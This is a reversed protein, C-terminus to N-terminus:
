SQSKRLFAKLMERNYINKEKLDKVTEIKFKKLNEYALKYCTANSMSLFSEISIDELLGVEYYDQEHLIAWYGLVDITCDDDELEHNEFVLGNIIDFPMGTINDNEFREKGLRQLINELNLEIESPQCLLKGISFKKLIEWHNQKFTLIEKYFDLIKPSHHKSFGVAMSLLKDVLSKFCSEEQIAEKKLHELYAIIDNLHFRGYLLKKTEHDKFVHYFVQKFQHLRHQFTLVKDRLKFINEIDLFSLQEAKIYNRLKENISDISKSFDNVKEIIAKRLHVFLDFVEPDKLQSSSLLIVNLNFIQEESMGKLCNILLDCPLNCFFSLIWSYDMKGSTSLHKLLFELQSLNICTALSIWEEKQTLLHVEDLLYKQWLSSKEPILNPLREKFYQRACREKNIAHQESLSKSLHNSLLEKERAFQSIKNSFTRDYIIGKLGVEEISKMPTCLIQRIRHDLRNLAKILQKHNIESDQLKTKITPIIQNDWLKQTLQRLKSFQKVDYQYNALENSLLDHWKNLKNTLKEIQMQNLQNKKIPDSDKKFINYFWKKQIIPEKSKDPLLEPLSSQSNFQLLKTFASMYAPPIEQKDFTSVLTNM